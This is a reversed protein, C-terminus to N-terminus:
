QLVVPDGLKLGSLVETRAGNGLGIKVPTQRRGTKGSSDPIEVFTERKENYILASEPILLVNHHEELIIEANASMNPKLLDRDNLISARVEFRTVNDKEVGMPAIRFIKGQFAHNKYADVTIRVPQDMKVLGIDTEDVKGEVYLEQVDGLTMILTANSGLQLISSVADGIEVERRLVVGTIPSRISAYKLNEEAREHQAQAQIVASRVKEVTRVNQEIEAERVGVAAHLSKKAVEASRMKQETSDFDSKSILGQGFLDRYRNYEALSYEYDKSEAEIGAKRLNAKLTKDQSEMEQLNSEASKLFAKAEKLQADLTEKDLEALLQGERVHDGANVYLYKILGSAKSKIEVKSLPEIKGTAVVSKAVSGTEVKALKEPPITKDVLFLAGFVWYGGLIVLLGVVSIFSVTFLRKQTM